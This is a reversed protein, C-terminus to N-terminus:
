QVAKLPVGKMVLHSAFTHRLVHWSIKRLGAKKCARWMPWKWENEKWARGGEACFVLEGKLHRQTKLAAEPQPGKLWAVAAVSLLPSQVGIPGRSKGRARSRGCLDRSCARSPSSAIM